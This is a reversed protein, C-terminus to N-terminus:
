RVQVVEGGLVFSQALHNWGCGRCVEVVYVRIDTYRRAMLPLEETARAQGASAKLEDGYVYNVHWVAERRCVPCPTRTREGHYKAARLLYPTADCVELASVRGAHLDALLTRRQLAYDVVARRTGVGALTGPSGPVQSGGAFDHVPHERGAGFRALATPKCTESAKDITSSTDLHYM